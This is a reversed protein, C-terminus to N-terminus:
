IAHFLSRNTYHKMNRKQFFLNWLFLILLVFILNLTFSIIQIIHAVASTVNAPFYLERGHLHSGAEYDSKSFLRLPRGQHDLLDVDIYKSHFEHLWHSHTYICKILLYINSLKCLCWRWNDNHKFNIDIELHVRAVLFNALFKCGM